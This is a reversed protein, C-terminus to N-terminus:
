RRLSNLAMNIAVNEQARTRREALKVEEERDERNRLFKKDSESARRYRSIRRDAEENVKRKNRRGLAYGIGAGGATLTAAGALGLGGKGAERMACALPAGITAGGLGGVIGGTVPAHKVGKKKLRQKDYYDEDEIKSFLASKFRIIM